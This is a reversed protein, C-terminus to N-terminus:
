KNRQKIKLTINEVLKDIKDNLALVDEKTITIHSDETTYGARHVINHRIDIEKKLVNLDVDINFAAKFIDKVKCSNHYVIHKVQEVFTMEQLISHEGRLIDKAEKYELFSLHAKLVKDYSEYCQCTKWM